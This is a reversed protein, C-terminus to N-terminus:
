DEILWGGAGPRIPGRCWPGEIIGSSRVVLDRADALGLAMACWVKADATYRVDAPSGFGPGVECLGHAVFRPSAECENAPIDAIRFGNTTRHVAGIEHEM